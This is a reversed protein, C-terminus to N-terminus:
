GTEQGADQMRFDLRVQECVQAVPKDRYVLPKYRWRRLARAASSDFVRAPRSDVVVIDSVEGDPTVTFSLDVWGEIRHKAAQAPYRPRVRLLPALRKTNPFAIGCPASLPVGRELRALEAYGDATLGLEAQARLLDIATGADGLKAVCKASAVNVLTVVCPDVAWAAGQAKMRKLFRTCDGRRFVRMAESYGKSVTKRVAYTTRPAQQEPPPSGGCASAGLALVLGVLWRAAALRTPPERCVDRHADRQGRKSAQTSRDAQNNM